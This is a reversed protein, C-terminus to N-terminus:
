DGCRGRMVKYFKCGWGRRRGRGRGRGRGGGRPMDELGLAKGRAKEGWDRGFRWGVLYYPIYALITDVCCLVVVLLSALIKGEFSLRNKYELTLQFQSMLM